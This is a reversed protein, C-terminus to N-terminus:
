YGLKKLAEPVDDEAHTYIMTTSTNSHGLLKQLTAIDVGSRIANTAFSHRLGHFDTKTFKPLADRIEQITLFMTVSVYNSTISFGQFHLMEERMHQPLYSERNKGGKGDYVNVIIATAMEIHDPQLALVEDRRLGGYYAIKCALRLENGKRTRPLYELLTEFQQKNLVRQKYDARDKPEFEGKIPLNDATDEDIVGHRKMRAITAGVQLWKSQNKCIVPTEPTANLLDKALRTYIKITHPSNLGGRKAGRREKYRLADDLKTLDIM